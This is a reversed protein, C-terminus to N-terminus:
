SFCYHLYINTTGMQLQSINGWILVNSGWETSACLGSLADFARPPSLASLGAQCSIALGSLVKQLRIGIQWRHSLEDERDGMNSPWWPGTMSYSSTELDASVFMLSLVGAIDQISDQLSKHEKFWVSRIMEKSLSKYYTM